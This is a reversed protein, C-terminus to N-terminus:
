IAWRPVRGQLCLTCHPTVGRIVGWNRNRARVGLVRQIIQELTLLVTGSTSTFLSPSFLNLFFFSLFFSSCLFLLILM